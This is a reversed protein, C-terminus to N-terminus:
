TLAPCKYYLQISVKQDTTRGTEFSTKKVNSDTSDFRAFKFSSVATICCLRERPSIKYGRRCM